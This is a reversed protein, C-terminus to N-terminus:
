SRRDGDNLVEPLCPPLLSVERTSGLDIRGDHTAEHFTLACPLDALEDRDLQLACGKGREVGTLGANSWEAGDIQHARLGRSVVPVSRL